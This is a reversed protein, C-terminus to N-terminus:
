FVTSVVTTINNILSSRTMPFSEKDLCDSVSQSQSSVVIDYNVPDNSLFKSWKSSRDTTVSVEQFASLRQKRGCDVENVM